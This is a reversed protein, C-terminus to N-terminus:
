RVLSALIDSTKQVLRHPNGPVAFFGHHRYFAAARDDVADVVVLRPHQAALDAVHASAGADRPFLKVTRPRANPADIRFRSQSAATARASESLSM